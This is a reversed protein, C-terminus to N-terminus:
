MCYLATCDTCPVQPCLGMRSVQYRALSEHPNGSPRSVYGLRLDPTLVISIVVWGATCELLM